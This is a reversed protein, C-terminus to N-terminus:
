GEKRGKRKEVNARGGKVTRLAHRNDDDAVAVANRETVETAKVIKEQAVNGVFLPACM